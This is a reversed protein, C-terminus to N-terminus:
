AKTKVGSRWRSARSAANTSPRTLTSGEFAHGTTTDVPLHGRRNAIEKLQELDLGNPNSTELKVLTEALAADLHKKYRVAAERSTAVVQAKYGNPFVHSLYHRVMDRAKAEITPEAELYADRSGYGLIELRQQLDYDSFVDAFTADM